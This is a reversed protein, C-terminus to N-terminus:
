EYFDSEDIELYLMEGTANQWDWANNILYADQWTTLWITGSSIEFISCWSRWQEYQRAIVTPESWTDGGDSSFAICLEERCWSGAPDQNDFAGGRRTTHSSRTNVWENESVGEPHSQNWAMILNGSALEKIMLNTGSTPIKTIDPTTDWTVGDNTSISKYIFDHNNRIYMILDGNSKEFVIPEMAGDHHGSGAIDIVSNSKTWSVGSNDSYYVHIQWHDNNDASVLDQVPYILRDDSTAFLRCFGGSFGEHVKVPSKWTAGNDKSRIAWNSLLADDNATRTTNDWVLPERYCPDAETYAMVIDGNGLQMWDPNAGLKGPGVNNSKISWNSSWTDGGDTSRSLVNYTVYKLIDGNALKLFPGKDTDSRETVRPELWLLPIDNGDVEPIERPAKLCLSRGTLGGYYIDTSTSATLSGIVFWNGSSNENVFSVRHIESTLSGDKKAQFMLTQLKSTSSGEPVDGQFLLRDNMDYVRVRVNDDDVGGLRFAISSVTADLIEDYARDATGYQVLSFVTSQGESANWIDSPAASSTVDRFRVTGSSDEILICQGTPLPSVTTYNADPQPIVTVHSSLSLDIPSSSGPQPNSVYNEFTIGSLGTLYSDASAIMEVEVNGGVYDNIPDKVLTDYYFDNLNSADSHSGVLFWTGTLNELTIKGIESVDNSDEQAVLLITKAKTIGSGAPVTADYILENNTDYVKLQIHNADVGALRLAVGAAGSIKKVTSDGAVDYEDVLRLTTIRDQTNNYIDSPAASSTIDRFRVNNTSDEVVLSYRPIGPVHTSNGASPNTFGFFPSNFIRDVPDNSDPQPNSVYKEFDIATMSRNSIDTSNADWNVTIDIASLNAVFIVFFLIRLSLVKIVDLRM